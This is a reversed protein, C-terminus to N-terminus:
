PDRELVGYMPDELARALGPASRRTYVDGRVGPTSRRVGRSRAANAGAGGSARVGASSLSERFSCFERRVSAACCYDSTPMLVGVTAEEIINTKARVM